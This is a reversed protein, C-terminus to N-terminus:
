GALAPLDTGDITSPGSSGRYIEIVHLSAAGPQTPSWFPPIGGGYYGGYNIQKVTIRVALAQEPSFALQLVHDRYQGSVQAVVLWTGDPQEVSLTYSRLGTATSGVSQTDVIIRDILSSTALHVTLSPAVDGPSSVWGAGTTAGSIAASANGSSATASAGASALAVDTGYTATPTIDLSDSSPYSIYTVQGSIALRYAVGPQMSISTRDGYESTLTVLVVSRSSSHLVVKGNVALDDSWVAALSDDAGPPSSFLAEYSHPIGTSPMSLYRRGALEDAATMTALAAPKVWDDGTSTQILSFTVGDNGWNGEDFFYNWVPVHLVKQWLMARSVINAQQLFDFQGNSWWGVETMWLPKKGIVAELDQVQSITGDEEWSDNNGTYPHVGVADLYSLGGAAILANWWPMPIGLTSGGIVTASPDASKVGLYFPKLLQSVYLGANPWGNNNPENWPEWATVPACKSCGAPPTSYYKVLAAIDGQWWSHGILATSIPDGGTVQVWYTVHDQVALYAAEFYSNPAKAFTVASPGCTAATPATSNCLPLFNSWDMSAGRLGDLGLQSNLAVGRPDSPGGAGIGTPLTSLDLRDGTTGVTYPLCTSGLVQAPSSSSDYLTALVEYPGPTTDGAPITLPVSSLSSAGAPLKVFTTKPVAESAVESASEVSYGLKLDSALGTWSPSFDATVQPKTGPSFYNGQVPTDLGAGWGLTDLPAQPAALYDELTALPVESVNNDRSFPIGGEFYLNGDILYFNSGALSLTKGLTTSGELVGDSSTAEITRLPDATYIVGKAGAAAQGQYYSNIRDVRTPM